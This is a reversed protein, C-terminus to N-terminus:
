GATEAQLLAQYAARLKQTISSTQLKRGDLHSVEVIGWSSLSVFAGQKQALAGPLVACERTPIGLRESIEYIAGRTVGPLIGLGLPPTCVGGEEIWFINGSAAEAVMGDPGLLLGEDAGAKEAETRAMVQPLKNGTKFQSLPDGAHVLFSTTALRWQM